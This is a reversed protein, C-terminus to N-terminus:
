YTELLFRIAHADELVEREASDELRHLQEAIYNRFNHSIALLREICLRAAKPRYHENSSTKRLCCICLDVLLTFEINNPEYKKRLIARSLTNLAIAQVPLGAQLWVIAWAPSFPIRDFLLAILEDSLEAKGECEMALALAIEQTVEESPWLRLALLKLERVPRHWLYSALEISPEVMRALGELHGRTVGWNIEYNIGRKRMQTAVEGDMRTRLDMRLKRAICMTNESPECNPLSYNLSPHYIANAGNYERSYRLMQEDYKESYDPYIDVIKGDVDTKTRLRPNVFGKYPPTDLQEYVHLVQEHLARPVDIAYTEIIKKASATDGESKIRQIERLLQGFVERLPEYSHIKLQMGDMEIVDRPLQEMAWRAILARNRMHAEEIRHGRKIRVLQKILGNHMYRYYEAKYAEHDPLLGLEIMKPDAIFYLAFLDARAEEITSHWQGLADPSVTPLLQGSGHGLCEHLDTHLRSTISEYRHLLARVENDQIFLRDEDKHLNADDYAKHINEIRISKSGYQTRIADANPLNIGIPTAPYADGGLIVAHVVTASIGCPNPKRFPPDIPAHREFWGAYKSLLRTQASAEKDIFEVLGEWSGKLGIPDQYTEIFGNIFDVESGTDKVWEICYQDFLGLDGSEYYRALLEIISQRHSSQEEAKAMRLQSVIEQLYHTYCGNQTSWFQEQLQGQSDRYVYSNLGLALSANPQKAKEQYFAEVEATQLGDEYFHVSSSQILDQKGDQVTRFPVITNDFILRCLMDVSLLEGELTHPALDLYGSSLCSHYLERFYTEDFAPKLKYEGYHHHLGNAFWICFLYSKFLAFRPDERNGRYHMYIRELTARLPLNYHCNQDTYIDRGALAAESLHYVLRKQSDSLSEFAKPLSYRLIEIDAFRCVQQGSISSQGDCLIGSPTPSNCIKWNM